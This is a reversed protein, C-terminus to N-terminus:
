MFVMFDYLQNVFLFIKRCIENGSFVDETPTVGNQGAPVSPTLALAHQGINQLECKSNYRQLHLKIIM